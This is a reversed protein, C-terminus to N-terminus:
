DIEYKLFFHFNHRKDYDGGRKLFRERPFGFLLGMGKLTSPSPTTSRDVYGGGVGDEGKQHIVTAPTSKTQASVEDTNGSLYLTLYISLSTPV